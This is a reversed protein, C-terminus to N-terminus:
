DPFLEQGLYSGLRKIVSTVPEVTKKHKQKINNEEKKERKRKLQLSRSSEKPSEPQLFHFGKLILAAMQGLTLRELGAGRNGKEVCWEDKRSNHFTCMETHTAKELSGCIWLQSSSLQVELVHDSVLRIQDQRECYTMSLENLPLLTINFISVTSFRWASVGKAALLAIFVAAQRLAM